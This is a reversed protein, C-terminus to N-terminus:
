LMVHELVIRVGVGILVLGGILQAPKGLNRGTAIGLRLGLLSLLGTTLGILL